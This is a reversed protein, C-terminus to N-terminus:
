VAAPMGTNDGGFAEMMQGRHGDLINEHQLDFNDGLALFSLEEGGQQQQAMQGMGQPFGAQGGGPHGGQQQMMHQGAPMGQRPHMQMPAGQQMMHQGAPNPVQHQRQRKQFSRQRELARM